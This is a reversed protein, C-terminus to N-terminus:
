QEHIRELLLRRARARSLHFAPWAPPHAQDVVAAARWRLNAEIEERVEGTAEDAVAILAPVADESLTRFYDTDIYSALDDGPANERVAMDSGRRVNQVVILADPNIVNLTAVFGLGAVLLGVAFREPRLWLTLAFWALVVGLWVMFVHPYVRLRTFGYAEEYMLLRKFASALMVCTFVMLVTASSSFILRQRRGQRPSLASLLLVLGLTLVAVIVLEGFGRRAYEAYTFKQPDINLDGGFLYPVQILVFFFFLLNVANIVVVSETIGAFTPHNVVPLRDIWTEVRDRVSFVLGGTALLGVSVALSFHGVWRGLHDLFKLSLVYELRDAFVMDASALLGAFLLVVPTAMLLGKVVAMAQHRTPRDLEAAQTQATSLAIQGGRVLAMTLARLPALVLAVLSLHAAPRQAAYVALLAALLLCASLNLFLLFGNARVFGMAAFFLLAAPLWLNTGMIRAGEWRCVLALGAILLCAFILVSLGPLNGNFLLDFALGLGLGALLVRRPHRVSAAGLEVHEEM